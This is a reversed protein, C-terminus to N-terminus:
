LRRGGYLLRVVYGPAAQDVGSLLATLPVERLNLVWLLHRNTGDGQYFRKNAREFKFQSAQHKDM